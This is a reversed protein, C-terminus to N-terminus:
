PKSQVLERRLARITESDFPNRGAKLEGIWIELKKIVGEGDQAIKRSNKRRLFSLHSELDEAAGAYDKSLARAMARIMHRNPYIDAQLGAVYDCSPLVVEAFGNFAGSECIAKNRLLRDIPLLGQTENALHVAVRYAALAQKHDRLKVFSEAEELKAAPDVPLNPCTARYPVGPLHQKWEELTLNRSVRDCVTAILDKPHLFWVRVTNDTNATALWSSDPGFALTQAYVDRDLAIGAVQKLTV